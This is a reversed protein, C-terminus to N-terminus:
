HTGNKVAHLFEIVRRQKMSVKVDSAMRDSQGDEAM